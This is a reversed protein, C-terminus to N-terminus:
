GLRLLVGFHVFFTPYAWNQNSEEFETGLVRGTFFESESCM